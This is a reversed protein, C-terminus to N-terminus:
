VKRFASRLLRSALGREEQFPPLAILALPYAALVLASWLRSEWAGVVPLVSRVAFFALALPIACALNALPLRVLRYRVGMIIVLALMLGFTLLTSLVAGWVRLRPILTAYCVLCFAASVLTNAMVVRTKGAQLFSSHLQRELSFFVYSLAVWPVYRAADWFSRDAAIYVLDQGLVFFGLGIYIFFYSFYKFAKAHTEVADRGKSLSYMQARWFMQFPLNLQSVLMGLKYALSYLGVEALTCTRTLFYRDGYHVALLALGSVGLPTSYRAIRVGLAADTHWGLEGQYVMRVILGAVLLGSVVANSALIANIGLGFGLLLILNLAITGFLRILSIAAFTGSRGEARLLCLSLDLAPGFLFAVAAIRIGGSYQASKLLAISLWPASLFMAVGGAAGLLLGIGMMTSFVRRRDEGSQAAAYFYFFADGAIGLALVTSLIMSSLDIIELAGYDAPPMKRTYVPLLFFGAMRGLLMTVMYTGTQRATKALASGQSM